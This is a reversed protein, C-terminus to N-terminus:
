FGALFADMGTSEWDNNM